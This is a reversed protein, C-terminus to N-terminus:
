DALNQPYGNIITLSHNSTGALEQLDAVPACDGPRDTYDTCDTIIWQAGYSGGQGRREIESVEDVAFFLSFSYPTINKVSQM